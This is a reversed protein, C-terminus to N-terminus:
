NQYNISAHKLKILASKEWGGTAIATDWHQIKLIESFVTQAGDIPVCCSPSQKIKNSLSNFFDKKIDSVEKDTPSRGIHKEFIELAFGSDTSYKYEHWNSNLKDINLYDIFANLFIDSDMSVTNTLTGDIDFIILNNQM